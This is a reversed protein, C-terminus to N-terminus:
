VSRRKNRSALHTEPGKGNQEQEGSGRKGAQEAGAEAARVGGWIGVAAEM